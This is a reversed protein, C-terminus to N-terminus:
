VLLLALGSIMFFTTLSKLDISLSLAFHITYDPASVRKEVKEWERMQKSAMRGEISWLGGTDVFSWAGLSPSVSYTFLCALRTLYEGM